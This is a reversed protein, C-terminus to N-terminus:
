FMLDPGLYKKIWGIPINDASLRKHMSGYAPTTGREIDAM